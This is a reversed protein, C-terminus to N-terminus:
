SSVMNKTRRKEAPNASAATALINMGYSGSTYCTRGGSCSADSGDKYAKVPCSRFVMTLCEPRGGHSGVGARGNGGNHPM